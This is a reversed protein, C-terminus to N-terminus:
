IDTSMIIAPVYDGPKAEPAFPPRVILADARALTTLMASDQKAYPTATLTGSSDRALTARLYDERKDNAKISAALMVSTTAPAHGPLGQLRALAPALYLIACVMASVPNGPLGMFPTAKFTGFMLPKGPRMAIKHFGVDLGARGLVSGILDHDGVSVGGSTVIMDVGTASEALARLSTEDDKAVGLHIAEGGHHRVFACLGPGNASVLQGYAVPDGPMVVEDGTSLVAVRPRRFVEIEPLNMAALLGVDRFTLRKPAPLVMEGTKFDQAAPRIHRGQIAAEKVAVTDGTAETDEQIVVADAGAPVYAGTFIRAAQGAGVTGPWPHGAASEGVVNLSAGVVADATRVAYGDMASVDAVPHSIRAVADMALVRGLSEAVPVTERAVPTLAAVIKQRAEAVSIM